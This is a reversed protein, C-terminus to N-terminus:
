LLRSRVMDPGSPLLMLFLRRHTTAKKYFPSNCSHLHIYPFLKDLLKLLKSFSSTGTPATITLSLSTIEHACLKRSVVFRAVTM